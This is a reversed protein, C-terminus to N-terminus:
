VVFHHVSLRVLELVLENPFCQYRLFKEGIVQTEDEPNLWQKKASKVDTQTATSVLM